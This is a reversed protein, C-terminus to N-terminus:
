SQRSPRRSGPANRRTAPKPWTSSTREATIRAKAEAQELSAQAQTLATVKEKLDQQSRSPDLRIVIDGAKVGAGSPALWVIQLDPVDRPAGIQVSHGAILQGRCRVLVLFDGQRAPATPLDVISRTRRYQRLAFASGAVLLLFLGMRIWPGLWQPKAKGLTRKKM